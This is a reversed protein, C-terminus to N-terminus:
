RSAVPPPETALQHEALSLYLRARERQKEESRSLAAACSSLRWRWQATIRLQRDTMRRYRRDRRAALLLVRETERVLGARWKDHCREAEHLCALAQENWGLQCHRCGPPVWVPWYRPDGDRPAILRGACPVVGNRGARPCAGDPAPGRCADTVEGTAPSRIEVAHTNM